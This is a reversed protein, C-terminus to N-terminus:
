PGLCCCFGAWLSIANTSQSTRCFKVRLIHLESQSLKDEQTYQYHAVSGCCLSFTVMFPLSLPSLTQPFPVGQTVLQKRGHQQCTGRYQIMGKFNHLFSFINKARLTVRTVLPLGHSSPCPLPIRLVLLQWEYPYQWINYDPLSLPRPTAWSVLLCYGYWPSHWAPGPSPNLFPSNPM